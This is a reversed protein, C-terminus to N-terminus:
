CIKGNKIEEISRIVMTKGGAAQIRKLQEAQISSVYQKGEKIEIGYFQGKVCCLIDPCGRKNAVEVKIVWTDPQRELFRLVKSQLSM